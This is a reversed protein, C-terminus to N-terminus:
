TASGSGADEHHHNHTSADQREYLVGDGVLHAVHERVDDRQDGDGVHEEIRDDTGLIHVLVDGYVSQTRLCLGRLIANNLDRGAKCRCGNRCPPSKMETGMGRGPLGMGARRGAGATRVFPDLNFFIPCTAYM